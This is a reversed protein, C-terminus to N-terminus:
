ERRNGFSGLLGRAVTVTIWGAVIITVIIRAERAVDVASSSINITHVHSLSGSHAVAFSEMKSAILPTAESSTARLCTPRSKQSLEARPLALRTAAERSLADDLWPFVRAEAM